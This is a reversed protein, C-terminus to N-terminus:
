FEILDVVTTGLADAIRCLAEISANIRGAELKWLYSQSTGIMGALAVQTHGAEVRRQRIRKGLMKRRTGMDDMVYLIDVASAVDYSVYRKSRAGLSGFSAFDLRLTLM